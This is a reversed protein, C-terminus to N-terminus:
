HRSVGLGLALIFLVGYLYPTWWPPFVWIGMRAIAVLAIATVLSQVGIGLLNHPPAFALWGILVLPFLIQLLIFITM